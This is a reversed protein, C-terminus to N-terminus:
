HSSDSSSDGINTEAMDEEELLIDDLNKGNKKQPDRSQLLKSLKVPCQQSRCNTISDTPESTM